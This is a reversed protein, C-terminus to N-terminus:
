FLLKSPIIHQTHPWSFYPNIGQPHPSILQRLLRRTPPTHPTHLTPILLSPPAIKIHPKHRPTPQTPITSPTRHSGHNHSVPNHNHNTHLPSTPTLAQGHRHRHLNPASLPLPQMNSSTRTIKSWCATTSHIQQPTTANPKHLYTILTYDCQRIGVLSSLTKLM